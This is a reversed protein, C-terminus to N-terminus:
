LHRWIRNVGFEPGQLVLVTACSVEVKFPLLLCGSLRLIRGPPKEKPWGELATGGVGCYRARIVEVRRYFRDAAIDATPQQEPPNLNLKLRGQTKNARSKKKAM